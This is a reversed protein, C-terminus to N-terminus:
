IRKGVLGDLSNRSLVRMSELEEFQVHYLKYISTISCQIKKDSLRVIKDNLNLQNEEQQIVGFRTDFKMGQCSDELSLVYHRTGKINLMAYDNDLAKVNWFALEDVKDVKKLEQKEVFDSYSKYTTNTVRSFTNPTNSSCAGLLVMALISAIAKM